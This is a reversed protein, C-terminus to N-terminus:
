GCIVELFSQIMKYIRFKAIRRSGALVGRIVCAGFGGQDTLFSFARGLFEGYYSSSRDGVVVKDDETLLNGGYM